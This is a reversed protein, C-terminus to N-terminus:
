RGRLYGFCEEGPLEYTDKTYLMMQNYGMLAARRLWQKLYDVKMVANRCCDLLLGATKFTTNEEVAQDNEPLGSLLLGIGRAILSITGGTIEARNNNRTIRLGVGGLIPVLDLGKGNKVIPYHEGLTSLLERIEPDKM